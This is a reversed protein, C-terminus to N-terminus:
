GGVMPPAILIEGANPDFDSIEVGRRPQREVSYATHLHAGEGGHKGKVLANFRKRASKVSEEDAPDWTVHEDGHLPDLIRMVHAPKEAVPM